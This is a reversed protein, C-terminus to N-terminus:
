NPSSGREMWWRLEQTVADMDDKLRWGNEIRREIESLEEITM